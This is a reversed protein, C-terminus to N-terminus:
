TCTSVTSSCCESASRHPRRARAGDLRRRPASPAPRTRALRLRASSRVGPARHDRRRPRQPPDLRPARRRRVARLPRRQLCRLREVLASRRPRIRALRDRARDRGGPVADLRRLRTRPPDRLLDGLAGPQGRGSRGGQRDAGTLGSRPPSRPQTQGTTDAYIGLGAILFLSFPPLFVFLRYALAGGLMGGGITSDREVLEFAFDLDTAVVHLRSGHDSSAPRRRGAHSESRPDNACRRARGTSTRASGTRGGGDVQSSFSPPYSM